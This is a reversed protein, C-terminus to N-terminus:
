RHHEEDGRYTNIDNPTSKDSRIRMCVWCREEKNWSCEIIRGTVASSDIEGPFTIQAGDLLKKKGREYLFILQRNDSGVEFLFDVSNMEPYKWKLLGEHTRPIYPDDWGQFILGDADHCLKPIFKELTDKASLFLQKEYDRPEIIEKQLIEWRESFPAKTKPVSDLAMLDYALYRRLMKNDENPITDIVMEGDILTIDHLDKSPKRCPFRM